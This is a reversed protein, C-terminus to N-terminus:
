EAAARAAELEAVARTEETVDRWTVVAAYVSADRRLPDARVRARRTTGDAGAILLDMSPVTEGQLARASPMQAPSLAQGDVDRISLRQIRDPPREGPPMDGLLERGLGNTFLLAGDAGIIFIGEH